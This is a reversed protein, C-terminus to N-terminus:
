WHMEMDKYVSVAEKYRGYYEPWFMNKEKYDTLWVGYEPGFEDDDYRVLLVEGQGDERKRSKIKVGNESQIQKNIRGEYSDDM